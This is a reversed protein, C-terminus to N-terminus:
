RFRTGKSQFPFLRLHRVIHRHGRRIAAEQGAARQVTQHVTPHGRHLRRKQQISWQQDVFFWFRFEFIGSTLFHFFRCMYDTKWTYIEVSIFSVLIQEATQYDRVMQTIQDMENGKQHFCTCFFRHLMHCMFSRKVRVSVSVDVRVFM